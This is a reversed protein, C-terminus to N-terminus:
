ANPRACLTTFVLHADKDKELQYVMNSSIAGIGLEHAGFRTIPM